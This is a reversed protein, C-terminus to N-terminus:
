SLLPGTAFYLGAVAIAGGLAQSLRGKLLLGLLLGIGIGAVHIIGTAVVFGIAYSAPDVALPLEVGHAYGHFVAFVAILLLAIWEPAKWAFAIALGLVLVSLAIGLEVHPLVFGSMGLIGGAAMVLPFTVPLTWVNRGGMQAGWIGVALMALLHDMGLIPHTFGSQFGGLAGSEVHASASEPALSVFAVVVLFRWSIATRYVGKYEHSKM